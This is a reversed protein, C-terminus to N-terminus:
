TPRRKLDEVDTLLQSLTKTTFEDQRQVMENTLRIAAELGKLQARIPELAAYLDQAVADLKAASEAKALRTEHAVLSVTKMNSM